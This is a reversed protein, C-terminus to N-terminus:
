YDPHFQRLHNVVQIFQNRRGRAAPSCAAAMALLIETTSEIALILTVASPQEDLTEALAVTRIADRIASSRGGKPLDNIWTLVQTDGPDIAITIFHKM